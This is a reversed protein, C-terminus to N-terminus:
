KAKSSSTMSKQNNWTNQCLLLERHKRSPAPPASKNPFLSTAPAAPTILPGRKKIWSLSFSAPARKLTQWTCGLAKVGLGLWPKQKWLMNQSNCKKAVPLAWTPLKCCFIVFFTVALSHLFFFIICCLFYFRLFAFLFICLQFLSGSLPWM